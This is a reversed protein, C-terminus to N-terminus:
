CLDSAATRPDPDVELRTLRPSRWLNRWARGATFPERTADRLERLAECDWAARAADVDGAYSEETSEFLPTAFGDGGFLAPDVPDTSIRAALWADPIPKEHGIFGAEDLVFRATLPDALGLRDIVFVDLPVSYGSVGIGSQATAPTRLDAPPLAPIVTRDVVVTDATIEAARAGGRGWGQEEATVPHAVGLHGVIAARGDAIISRNVLVADGPRLWGAAVVAWVAVAAVPAISAARRSVPLMAVPAVLAFLPPLLLRGHAYDGGAVVVYGV